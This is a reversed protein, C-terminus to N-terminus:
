YTNTVGGTSTYSVALSEYVYSCRDTETLRICYPDDYAICYTPLDVYEFSHCDNTDVDTLEDYASRGSVFDIYYSGDGPVSLDACQADIDEGDVDVTTVYAVNDAAGDGDFDYCAEDLDSSFYSSGGSGSFGVGVYYGDVSGYTTTAYLDVTVCVTETIGDSDMDYPFASDVANGVGDSDIDMCEWDAGDTDGDCNNDISDSCNDISWDLEVGDPNVDANTDDCDETNDTYGSPEACQVIISSDTGYGDGDGDAYWEPASSTDLDTDDDDIAGDCDNDIEDCTETAVPNIAGNTGDCDTDNAVYNSPADCAYAYSSADGYADSDADEYWYSGDVVEDDGDTDGNCNDDVENCTEEAGPYVSDSTDDCDTDNSTYGTPEECAIQTSDANGYNDSDADEYWTDGLTIASDVDNCDTNDAVFGTRQTCTLVSMNENGYGDGDADEYWYTATALNLSDDADDTLEDCDNDLEDCVEEAGPYIADTTDDCDTNDSVYNTPQNCATTSVDPDGFSDLDNDAYWTAANLADDEDVIEDCDDDLENCYEDADPYVSARTDDCDTADAVYGEPQWCTETTSEANGFSDADTDEYWELVDIADDEDIQEDCDDDINNCHEDAGPHVSNLSDDCDTADAVYGAPQECDIDSIEENGFNDSDQDRYWNLVDIADDEDIQEDCDNDVFDCYEDAGPYTTEEGDDCDTYDEVYGEPHACDQTSVDPDGFSDNDADAYWPYTEADDDVITDCDNDEGDDCLERAGPYTTEEGDDCDTADALYGEPQDCNETPHLPDGFGDGDDDPYWTSAAGISADYDNCDPEYPIGDGDVDVEGVFVCGSLLLLSFLLTKHMIAGKSNIFLVFRGNKHFVPM